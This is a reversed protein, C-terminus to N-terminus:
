VKGFCTKGSFAEGDTEKGTRVARFAKIKKRIKRKYRKNKSWQNIM